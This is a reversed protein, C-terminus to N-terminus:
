YNGNRKAKSIIANYVMEVILPVAAFQYPKYKKIDNYVHRLNTCIYGWKLRVLSAFLGSAWAYTHNLPLFGIGNEGMLAHCSANLASMISKHTLM